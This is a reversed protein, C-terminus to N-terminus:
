TNSNDSEGKRLVEQRANHITLYYKPYFIKCFFVYKSQPGGSSSTLSNAIKIIRIYIGAKLLCQGYRENETISMLILESLTDTALRVLITKTM